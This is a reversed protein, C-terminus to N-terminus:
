QIFGFWEQFKEGLLPVITKREQLAGLFGYVWLVFIFIWFSSTILWSDFMGVFYGLIWFVLHIGFAQRIHFRAFDNKAQQNMFLAILTGIITLYSVIAATKGEKATLHEM